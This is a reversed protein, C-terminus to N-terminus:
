RLIFRKIEEIEVDWKIGNGLEIIDINEIQDDNYDLNTLKEQVEDMTMPEYTEVQNFDVIIYKTEPEKTKKEM